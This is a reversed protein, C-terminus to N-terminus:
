RLQFPCSPRDVAGPSDVCSNSPRSRVYTPHRWLRWYAVVRDSMEQCTKTSSAVCSRPPGRSGIQGPCRVSGHRWVGPSRRTAGRADEEIGSGCHVFFGDWCAGGRAFGSSYITGNLCGIGTYTAGYMHRFFAGRVVKCSLCNASAILLGAVGGSSGLSRAPGESPLLVSRLGAVMERVGPSPLGALGTGAFLPGGSVGCAMRARCCRFATPDVGPRSRLLLPRCSRSVGRSRKRFRLLPTVSDRGHSQHSVPSTREFVATALFSVVGSASSSFGLRGM